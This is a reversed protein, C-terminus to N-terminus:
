QLQPKGADALKQNIEDKRDQMRKPLVFYFDFLGEILDLNWDAEAPEVAVIEGTSTSKTPHAAFNGIIRVGHLGDALYSPLSRSNIVEEIQDHLDRKTTNAKGKLIHQLCRRSLAASAKPSDVLVLCAERYDESFDPPV